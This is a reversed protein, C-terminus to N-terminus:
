DNIDVEYRMLADRVKKTIKGKDYYECAIEKIYKEKAVKYAQFALEPTNFVGLYKLKTKINLRAAYTKERKTVGIPYKGRKCDHKILLANIETPVFCCTEPSYLKNGKILIDKDLAYNDIYNEDFWKKFNSFMLWENCIKCNKYTPFKKHYNDDYCRALMRRWTLYSQLTNNGSCVCGDYDDIGVGLVRKRCEPRPINKQRLSSEIKSCEPCGSGRSLHKNPTIYFIGHKRCEIPVKHRMDIYNDRNIHDYIYRNGWKKIFDSKTEELTKKRM